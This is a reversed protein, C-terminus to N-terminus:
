SILSRTADTICAEFVMNKADRLTDLSADILPSASPDRLLISVDKWTDIDLILSTSDESESPTTASTIQCGAEYEELPIVVQMFYGAMVQPLYNSVDVTTRLYDRVEVQGSPIDIKNVFRVGLRSVTEPQCVERYRLWLSEAESKFADWDEYNGLWSFAFRDVLANIVRSGDGRRVTVGRPESKARASVADEGVLVDSQIAFQKMPADYGVLGAVLADGDIQGAGQARECRIEIIAEAIPAHDYHRGVGGM